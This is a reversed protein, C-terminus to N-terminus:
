SAEIFELRVGCSERPSIRIAAGAARDYVVANQAFYSETTAANEVEITLSLLDGNKFSSPDYEPFVKRASDASILTITQTPSAEITIADNTLHVSSPGFIHRHAEAAAALNPVAGCLARVGRAGNAHCLWEPQRILQPTLHQCIVVDMLGPTEAANLFCLAFRPQVIGGPLEFNRTLQRVPQPHGGRREILSYAAQADDTALAVGMLGERQELIKGLNHPHKPDIIGRLELYDNDFMICWNGTGWELHSGRPTVTFGLRLYAARAAAMDRVAIIPHDIGKIIPQESM